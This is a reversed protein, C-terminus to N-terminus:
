KRVTGSPRPWTKGAGAPTNRILESSNQCIPLIGRALPPTEAKLIVGVTTKKDEGRWRPHKESHLLNLLGFGTKGAGAPTNGLILNHRDILSPRGRALPPTEVSRFMEQVRQWDEGRWRPHKGGPIVLLDGRPTKGAGAPTNRRIIIINRNTGRRGRALPPTEEPLPLAPVKYLDEGRWRPHKQHVFLVTDAQLTKGAGAPTNGRLKLGLEKLQHRGRALPPTESLM